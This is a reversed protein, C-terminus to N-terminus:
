SAARQRPQERPQVWQSTAVIRADDCRDAYRQAIDIIENLLSGRLTTPELGLHLLCANDVCLDNEAAERRPNDLYAIRAGTMDAVLRALEGVRWTETMQNYIRVRENRQPANAIAMEICRVTDQIHIFARTQGGQGHVTLDHGVAAQMLFRNLVTGYDGDYDFRNILREDLRTERTQTGWVVGQHLDTIRLGDNKNYFYFLLQDQTKTMHYISGPDPPFLIERQTRTGTSDDVEVTLYGEPIRLGGGYGYVGMTGLHVLHADVGTEVLACLVNQTAALNNEVTYRKARAHKMSYPASRQEAFHVIADPALRDITAELRDYERAVDMHLAAITRGTIQKWANLRVDIPAIPTLSSVGLENDIHRRSLNDVITVDHGQGSLHLATPWGCFGDGGLLLIKM